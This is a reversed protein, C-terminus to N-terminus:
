DRNTKCVSRAPYVTCASGINKTVIAGAAICSGKEIKINQIVVAGTGVHVYDEIQVTGCLIAGPAVHVNKGLRCDHDVSARTNIITGEGVSAGPQIIAGAMVQVGRALIVDEAIVASPHIVRAFRYGRTQYSDALEHRLLKGPMAGIGNVLEIEDPHFALLKQEDGIIKVGLIDTCESDYAKDIIGVINENNLRLMNILVRAHGGAGIIIIPKNM